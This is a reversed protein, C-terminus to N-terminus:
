YVRAGFRFLDYALARFRAVGKQEWRRVLGLGEDVADTAEHVADPMAEHTGDSQALHDAVTRCLVHRAKLGAEAADADHTELEAVLALARLAAVRAEASSQSTELSAQVNAINLWIAALLYQRDPIRAAGDRELVGVAEGFATVADTSEGQAHLALGRNQHAMALRRPFRPDDSMPLDRVVAIGED